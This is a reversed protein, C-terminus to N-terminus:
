GQGLREPLLAASHLHVGYRCAQAEDKSPRLPQMTFIFQASADSWLYVVPGRRAARSCLASSSHPHMRGCSRKPCCTQLTCIFQASANSRLVEVPLGATPHLHFTSIFICLPFPGKGVRTSGSLVRRAARSCPASSFHFHFHFTSITRKARAGEVVGGVLWFTSLTAYRLAGDRFDRMVCWVHAHASQDSLLDSGALYAAIARPLVGNGLLFLTTAFRDGVKLPSQSLVMQRVWAPWTEIRGAGREELVNLLSGRQM